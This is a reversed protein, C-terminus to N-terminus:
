STREKGNRVVVINHRCGDLEEVIKSSVTPQPGWSFLWHITSVQQSVGLKSLLHGCRNSPVEPCVRRSVATHVVHFYCEGCVDHPGSFQHDWGLLSSFRPSTPTSVGSRFGFQLSRRIRHVCRPLAEFHVRPIRLQPPGDPLCTVPQLSHSTCCDNTKELEVDNPQLLLQAHSILM